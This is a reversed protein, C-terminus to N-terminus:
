YVHLTALLMFQNLKSLKRNSKKRKKEKRQCSSETVEFESKKVIIVEFESSKLPDIVLIYKNPVM